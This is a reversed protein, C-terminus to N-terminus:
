HRACFPNRLWLGRLGRFAVRRLLCVFPCCPSCCDFEACGVTLCHHFLRTTLPLKDPPRLANACTAYSPSLSYRSQCRYTFLSSGTFYKVAMYRHAGPLSIRAVPLHKSIWLQDKYLLLSYEVGLSCQLQLLLLCLSESHRRFVYSDCKEPMHYAFDNSLPVFRELYVSVGAITPGVAIYLLEHETELALLWPPWYDISKLRISQNITRL